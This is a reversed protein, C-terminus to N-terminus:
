KLETIRKYAISGRIVFDAQRHLNLFGSTSNRITSNVMIDAGTQVSWGWWQHIIQAMLTIRVRTPLDTRIWALRGETMNDKSFPMKFGREIWGYAVITNDVTSRAVILQVSLPDHMQDIVGKCLNSIYYPVDPNFIGLFEADFDAYGIESIEAMDTLQMPQWTWTDRASPLFRELM